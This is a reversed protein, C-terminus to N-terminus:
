KNGPESITEPPVTTNSTPQMAANRRQAYEDLIAVSQTLFNVAQTMETTLVTQLQEVQKVMPLSRNEFSKSWSRIHGLKERAEDLAREARHVQMQHWSSPGRQTAISEQFLSAKAEELKRQRRFVEGEWHIRQDHDLWAQQRAVDMACEEVAVRAASLFNLLQSRFRALDDVSGIHAQDAM